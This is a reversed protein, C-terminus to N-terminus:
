LLRLNGDTTGTFNAGLEGNTGNVLGSTVLDLSADKSADEVSITLTGGQGSTGNLNVKSSKFLNENFTASDVNLTVNRANSVAGLGITGKNGELAGDKLTLTTGTFALKSDTGGLALKGGNTVSLTKSEVQLGKGTAIDIKGGKDVTLSEGVIKSNAIEAVAAKASILGGDYVSVSGSITSSKGIEVNASAATAKPATSDQDAQKTGIVINTANLASTEDKASLKLTGSKVNVSDLTVAAGSAADGGITLVTKAADAGDIVLSGSKAQVAASAASGKIVNDAGGKITITFAKDANNFDTGNGASINIKDYTPKDGGVTINQANLGNWTDKKDLDAAQAQGAALAATAAAIAMAINANKFIARYQAMLFKIANNTQKM